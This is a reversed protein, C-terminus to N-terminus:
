LSDDRRRLKRRHDLYWVFFIGFVALNTVVLVLLLLTKDNNGQRYPPPVYSLAPILQPPVVESDWCMVHNLRDLTKNVM